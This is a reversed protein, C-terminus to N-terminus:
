PGEGQGERASPPPVAKLYGDFEPAAAASMLRNFHKSAYAKFDFELESIGSQLV